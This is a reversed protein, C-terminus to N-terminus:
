SHSNKKVEEQTDEFWFISETTEEDGLQQEIYDIRSSIDISFIWDMKEAALPFIFFNLAYLSTNSVFEEPTRTSHAQPPRYRKQIWM